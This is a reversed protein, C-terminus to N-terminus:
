TNIARIERIAELALQKKANLHMYPLIAELLSAVGEMDGVTWTYMTKRPAPRPAASVVGGFSHLYDIVERDTMPVTIRWHGSTRRTISGEGDIIGALYGLAALDAPIALPSRRKYKGLSTSYKYPERSYLAV